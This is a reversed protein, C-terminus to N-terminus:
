RKKEYLEEVIPDYTIDEARGGALTRLLHDALLLDEQRKVIIASLKSVPYFGTEGCFLAYGDRRYQAMFPRSRWMMMSYVFPQVPVLDQTQAFQENLVYNLPRDAYNCHVQEDKVTILSDLKQEFFYNTVRAMEEGTQLPSTPNVWAVAEVPFREMFDAVVDDSKTTSSGLKAPRHYFEVQYREAIKEFVAHDANLVIRSFVGSALAAEIAYAIMPKGNILALNKMKLRTSGIRAPVMAICERDSM